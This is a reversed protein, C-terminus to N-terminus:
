DHYSFDPCCYSVKKLKEVIADDTLALHSIVASVSLAGRAMYADAAHILTGGSRTMDDYIIVHKDKVEGIVDQM